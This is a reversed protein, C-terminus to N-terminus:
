MMPVWISAGNMEKPTLMGMPETKMPHQPQPHDAHPKSQCWLVTIKLWLVNIERLWVNM